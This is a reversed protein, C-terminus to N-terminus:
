QDLEMGASARDLWARAAPYKIRSPACGLLILTAAESMAPRYGTEALRELSAWAGDSARLPTGEPSRCNIARQAAYYAAPAYNQAVAAALLDEAPRPEIWDITEPTVLQSLIQHSLELQAAPLNRASAHSILYNKGLNCFADGVQAGAATADAAQALAAAVAPDLDPHGRAYEAKMWEFLPREAASPQPAPTGEGAADCMPLPTHSLVYQARADDALALPVLREIQATMLEPAPPAIADDQDNAAFTALLALAEVHGARAAEELAARM